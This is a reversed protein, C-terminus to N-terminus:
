EEVVEEEEKWGLCMPILLLLLIIGVIGIIIGLLMMEFELIMCM